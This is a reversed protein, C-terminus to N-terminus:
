LYLFVFPLVLWKIGSQGVKALFYLFIFIFVM